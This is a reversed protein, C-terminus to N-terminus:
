GRRGKDHNGNQEEILSETLTYGVRKSNVRDALIAGDIMNCGWTPKLLEGLVKIVVGQSHYYERIKLELETIQEDSLGYPALIRYTGSKIEEQKSVM